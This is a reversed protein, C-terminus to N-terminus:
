KTIERVKKFKFRPLLHAKGCALIDRYSTERNRLRYNDLFLEWAKEFEINTDLNRNDLWEKAKKMCEAHGQRQNLISSYFDKRKGDVQIQLRWSKRSGMWRPKATIEYFKSIM